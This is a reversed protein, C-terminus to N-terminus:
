TISTSYSITYVNLHTEWVEETTLVIRKEDDWGFGTTGLLKSFASYEIRLKCMKNRLQKLQYPRGLKTEMKTRINNWGVKNFTSTTKNGKVVEEVLIEVFTDLEGKSWKVTDSGM